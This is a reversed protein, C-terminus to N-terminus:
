APEAPPEPLASELPMPIQDLVTQPISFPKPHGDEIGDAEVGLEVMVNVNTWGRIVWKSGLSGDIIYVDGVWAGAEDQLRVLRPRSGGAESITNAILDRIDRLHTTAPERIFPYTAGSASGNERGTSRWSEWDVIFDKLEQVDEASMSDDGNMLAAVRPVVVNRFQTIRRDGPCVKGPSTSYRLGGSVRWPDIGLRHYSMGDPVPLSNPVMVPPIDFRVCLWALLDVLTDVQQSTWPPVNTGTWAPFPAGKDATEISISYPNGEFDSAARYRLDQWQWVTGTGGLGFHSYPNGPRNFWSESGALTGVMTHVNVFRHLLPTTSTSRGTLPRYSAGAAIVAM